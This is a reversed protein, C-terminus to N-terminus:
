PNSYKATMRPSCPALHTHMGANKNTQTSSYTAPAAPQRANASPPRKIMNVAAARKSEEQLLPWHKCTISCNRFHRRSCQFASPPPQDSSIHCNCCSARRSSAAYSPTEKPQFATIKTQYRNNTIFLEMAHVTRTVGGCRAM